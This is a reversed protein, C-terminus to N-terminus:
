EHEQRQKSNTTENLNTIYNHSFNVAEAPAKNSAAM